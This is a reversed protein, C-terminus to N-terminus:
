IRSRAVKEVPLTSLLGTECAAELLFTPRPLPANELRLFKCIIQVLQRETILGDPASESQKGVAAPLWLRLEVLRYSKNTILAQHHTKCNWTVAHADEVTCNHAWTTQPLLSM